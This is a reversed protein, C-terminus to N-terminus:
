GSHDKKSTVSADFGKWELTIVELPMGPLAQEIESPEIKQEENVVCGFPEM